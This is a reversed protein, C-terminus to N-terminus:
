VSRLRHDHQPGCCRRAWARIIACAPRPRDEIPVARPAALLSLVALGQREAVRPELAPRGRRELLCLAGPARQRLSRRRQHERPPCLERETIERAGPLAELTRPAEVA